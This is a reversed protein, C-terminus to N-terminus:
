QSASRRQICASGTHSGTGQCLLPCPVPRLTHALWNQGEGLILEGQAFNQAPKAESIRTDNCGTYGDVGQQLIYVVEGPPPPTASPGPADTYYSILLGPREHIPYNNSSAFSFAALSREALLLVGDNQLSRNVWGQVIETLDLEYWQRIGRTTVTSEPVPRRDTLTDNAGPLEWANDAQAQTWTAECMNVDRVVYYAGITIDRGSWTTAYLQLKAETVVAHAPISGLDFRILGAFQQWYGVKLTEVGCYNAEPPYQAIYTDECGTYGNEGRRLVITQITGQAQSQSGSQGALVVVLLVAVIAVFAMVLRTWVTVRRCM